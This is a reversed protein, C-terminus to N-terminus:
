WRGTEPSPTPANNMIIVKSAAQPNEFLFNPINSVVQYENTIRLREDVTNAVIQRVSNLTLYFFV